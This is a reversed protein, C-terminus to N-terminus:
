LCSLMETPDISGAKRIRLPTQVIGRTASGRSTSGWPSGRLLCVGGDGM